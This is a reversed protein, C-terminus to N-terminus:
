GSSPLVWVNKCWINSFWFVKYEITLFHVRILSCCKHFLM